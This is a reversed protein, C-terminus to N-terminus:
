KVKTHEAYPMNVKPTKTILPTIAAAHPLHRFRQGSVQTNAGALTNGRCKGSDRNRQANSTQM